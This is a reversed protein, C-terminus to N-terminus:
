YIITFSGGSQSGFRPNVINNYISGFTYSLGISAFYSYQTALEKQRLLIEDPTAGGMPLSLQDHIMSVSGFLNVSMGEFLSLSLQGFVQLRNKKFDNFYHSGEISTSITGWPQKIDVTVTLDNKSFTTPTSALCLKMM